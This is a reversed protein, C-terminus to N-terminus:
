RGRGYWEVAGGPGYVAAWGDPECTRCDSAVARIIAGRQWWAWAALDPICRDDVIDDRANLLDLVAYCHAHEPGHGGHLAGAAAAARLVVVAGTRTIAGDMDLEYRIGNGHDCARFIGLAVVGDPICAPATM